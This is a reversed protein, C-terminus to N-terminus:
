RPRRSGPRRRRRSVAALDDAAQGVSSTSSIRAVGSRAALDQEPRSPTTAAAPADAGDDYAALQPREVLHGRGRVVTAASGSAGAVDVQGLAHGLAEGVLAGLDALDPRASCGARRVDLRGEVGPVAALLLHALEDGVGRVLQPSGEGGDVPVGLQGTTRRVVRGREGRGEGLDLGLGVPHGRQDLVQEQEGAEVGAARELAGLDVDGPQQELGDGVGAHEGGVVAPLQLEGVLGDRHGAVLLPEVLHDGVQEAVGAM